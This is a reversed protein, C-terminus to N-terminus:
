TNLCPVLKRRLGTVRTIDDETLALLRGDREQDTYSYRYAEPLMPSFADAVTVRRAAKKLKKWSDKAGYLAFDLGFAPTLAGNRGSLFATVFGGWTRTDVSAAVAASESDGAEAEMAKYARKMATLYNVQSYGGLCKVGYYFSLLGFTLLLSPILEKRRLGEAIAEPTLEVRFTGDASVLANGQKWLQLRNVGDKPLGWFLYTGSHDAMSFGGYIGDFHKQMLTDMRPEFLMKTFLTSGHVHHRLLLEATVWEQELTILRPVPRPHASFYQQWLAMNTRTIQDSYCAGQLAAPAEYVQSLLASLREAHLASVEGAKVKDQLAKRVKKVEDITYARFRYTAAAHANSPLFSLRQAKLEGDKNEAHFQLGRPFSCNNLSINACSLVLVNQFLPDTDQEKVLSGLVHANLFDPSNLPGHHDNTSVFYYRELQAAISVAADLGLLRETEAAITQIFERKRAPIPHDYPANTYARVFRYISWEGRDEMIERLVPKRVFVADRM